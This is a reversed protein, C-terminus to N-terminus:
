HRPPRETGSSKGGSRRRVADTAQNTMRRGQPSRAFSQARHDLDKLNM